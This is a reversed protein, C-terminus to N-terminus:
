MNVPATPPTGGDERDIRGSAASRRSIMMDKRNAAEAAQAIAAMAM